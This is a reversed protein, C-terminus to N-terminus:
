TLLNGDDDWEAKVNRTSQDVFVWGEPLSLGKKRLTEEPVGDWINPTNGQYGLEKIGAEATYFGTLTLNRVLSFFTVGQSVEPEAEEPFAIRDLVEKQQQITCSKFELGYQNNTYNDLWMIGGKLPLQHKPMDKAIFEIFAPVEADGASKYGDEAPLILDCLIAITAAEHPNFCVESELEEDRLKEKATRGYKNSSAAIQEEKTEVEPECSTLLTGGAISGLLMSKLSERRDM